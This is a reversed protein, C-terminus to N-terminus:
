LPAAMSKLTPSIGSKHPAFEIGAVNTIVLLAYVRAVSLSWSRNFPSKASLSPVVTQSSRCWRFDDLLAVLDIWRQLPKLPDGPGDDRLTSVM